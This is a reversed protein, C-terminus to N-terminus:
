LTPLDIDKCSNATLQNSDDYINVWNSGSTSQKNIDVGISVKDRIKPFQKDTSPKIYYSGMDSYYNPKMDNNHFGNEIAENLTKTLDISNQDIHMTCPCTDCCMTSSSGIIKNQSNTQLFGNDYPNFRPNDLSSNDMKVWLYQSDSPTIFQKTLKVSAKFYKPYQNNCHNSSYKINYFPQSFIQFDSDQAFNSIQSKIVKTKAINDTNEFIISEHCIATQWAINYSSDDKDISMINNSSSMVFTINNNIDDNPSTATKQITIKCKNARDSLKIIGYQAQKLFQCNDSATIIFSSFNDIFFWLNLIMTNSSINTFSIDIDTSKQNILFLLKSNSNDPQIINNSTINLNNLNQSQNIAQTIIHLKQQIKNNNQFSLQAWYTNQNIPLNTILTKEDLKDFPLEYSQTKSNAGKIQIFATNQDENQQQNNTVLLEKLRKQFQLDPQLQLKLNASDKKNNIKPIEIYDNTITQTDKQNFDYDISIQFPNIIYDIFKEIKSNNSNNFLIKEQANSIAYNNALGIKYPIYYTKHPILKINSLDINLNNEQITWDIKSNSTANNPVYVSLLGSQQSILPQEKNSNIIIIPEPSNPLINVTVKQQIKINNNKSTVTINWDVTTSNQPYATILLSSFNKVQSYNITHQEGSSDFSVGDGTQINVNFEDDMSNIDKNEMSLKLTQTIAGEGATLFITNNDEISVFSDKNDNFQKIDINNVPIIRKNVNFVTQESKVRTLDKITITISIDHKYGDGQYTITFYYYIKNNSTLEKNIIAEKSITAPSYQGSSNNNIDIIFNNPDIHDTSTIVIPVIIVPFGETQSFSTSSDPVYIPSNINNSDGNVKITLNSISVNLYKVVHSDNITLSLALTLNGNNKATIYLYGTNLYAAFTIPQLPEIINKDGKCVEVDIRRTQQINVDSMKVIIKQTEGINIAVNSNDNNVSFDLSQDNNKTTVLDTSLCSCLILLIVFAFCGKIKLM